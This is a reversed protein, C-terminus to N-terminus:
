FVLPVRRTVALARRHTDGGVRRLLAERRLGLGDVSRARDDAVPPPGVRGGSRPSNLSIKGGRVSAHRGKLDSTYALPYVAVTVVKKRERERKLPVMEDGIEVCCVGM